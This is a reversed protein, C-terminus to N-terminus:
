LHDAIRVRLGPLAAPTLARDFPTPPSIPWSNAVGGLHVLTHGKEVDVLWYERVGCSRYLPGKSQRGKRNKDAIEIVLLADGGRAESPRMSRPVIYFDPSPWSRESLRFTSDCALRAVGHLHLTLFENLSAKLDIHRAGEAGMHIIDGEVLEIRDGEVIGLEMLRLLEEGTFRHRQPEASPPQFPANM